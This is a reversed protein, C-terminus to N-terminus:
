NLQECGEGYERLTFKYWMCMHGDKETDARECTIASDKLCALPQQGGLEKDVLRNLTNVFRRNEGHANALHHSCINSTANNVCM